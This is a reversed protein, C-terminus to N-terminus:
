VSRTEKNMLLKFRSATFVFTLQYPAFDPLFLLSLPFGSTDTLPEYYWEDLGPAREGTRSLKRQRKDRGSQGGRPRRHHNVREYRRPSPSWFWSERFVGVRLCTLISQKVFLLLSSIEQIKLARPNKKM